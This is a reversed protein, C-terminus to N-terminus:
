RRRLLTCSVAEIVRKVKSKLVQARQLGIRKNIVLATTATTLAVTVTQVVLSGLGIANTNIVIVTTVTIPAVTVTQVVPSGPSMANTAVIVTPVTTPAVTVTQVVPSGPSLANTNLVIVTPANTLAVTM